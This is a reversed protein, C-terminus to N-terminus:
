NQPVFIFDGGQDGTKPVVKYLPTQDANNTVIQKISTSLTEATIVIHNENLLSLFASAFVSHGQGGGDLVPQLAGSTLAKRTKKELLQKFYNQNINVSKNTGSSGRIVLSGSYCSDAVVLIHKAPLLTLINSIDDSSIWQSNDESEITNADVPLWYGRNADDLYGHGAYYILLNDYPGLKKKLSNLTSLIDRRTANILPPLVEFNYKLELLNAVAEADLIASDLDEMGETEYDNNGIVVAYYKGFNLNIKTEKEQINSIKIDANELRLYGKASNKEPIWISNITQYDKDYFGLHSGKTIWSEVDKKENNNYKPNSEWLQITRNRSDIYGNLEVIYEEHEYFGKVQYRKPGIKKISKFTVLWDQVYANFTNIEEWEYTGKFKRPFKDEIKEDFIFGSRASIIENLQSRTELKLLNDETNDIIDQFLITSKELDVEEGIGYQYILGNFYQSEYKYFENEYLDDIYNQIIIDKNDYYGNLILTILEKKSDDDGRKAARSFWDGATIYNQSVQFGYTYFYGLWYQAIPNGEEAFQLCQLFADQQNRGQELGDIIYECSDALNFEPTKNSERGKNVNELDNLSSIIDDYHKIIDEKFQPFNYFNGNANEYLIKGQSLLDIAKAPDKNVGYGNSYLYSLAIFPQLSISDTKTALEYYKIANKFSHDVGQGYEYAYGISYLTLPDNKLAENFKYGKMLIDFSKKYNQLLGNKGDSYIISLNNYAESSEPQIDISKNYYNVAKMYEDKIEFIIAMNYFILSINKKAEDLDEFNDLNDKYFNTGNNYVELAKTADHMFRNTLYATNLYSRLVDEEMLLTMNYSNNLIKDYYKLAEVYKSKQDNWNRYNEALQYYIEVKDKHDYREDSLSALLNIEANSYDELYSYSLGLFYLADKINYESSKILWKVSEESFEGYDEIYNMYGLEFFAYPYNSDALEIFLDHAKKYQEDKYYGRALQYIFRQENPYKKLIEKCEGIAQKADLVDWFVGESVKRPDYYEAHDDCATVPAQAYSIYSPLFFTIFFIFLLINKM